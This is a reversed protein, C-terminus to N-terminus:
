SGGSRLIHRGREVDRAIQERLADVSPFRQEARLRAEFTLEVRCGYLDGEFDLLHAEALPPDDTKFTPRRGVNTVAAFRTGEALAGAASLLRAHGAYVGLGPIVENEPALNLTPWLARAM